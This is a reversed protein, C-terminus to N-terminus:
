AHVPERAIPLIGRQALRAMVSDLLRPIAATVEPSLGVGWEVRSPQVGFAVLRCPTTGRLEMIA